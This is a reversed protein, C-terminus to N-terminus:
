RSRGKEAAERAVWSPSDAFFSFLVVRKSTGKGPCDEYIWLGPFTGFLYDLAQLLTVNDLNGTIHPSDVTFPAHGLSVGQPPSEINHEAEFQKIQPTSLITWMAETPDYTALSRKPTGRFSVHTIRLDLLDHPADDERMRLSGDREQTIQMKPDDAFLDRLIEFPSATSRMPLDLKPFDRMTECAVGSYELSASLHAKSLTAMLLTIPDRVGTVLRDQSECATLLMFVLTTTLVRFSMNDEEKLSNARMGQLSRIISQEGDVYL